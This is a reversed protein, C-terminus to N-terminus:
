KIETSNLSHFVKKKTEMIFLYQLKILNLVDTFIEEPNLTIEDHIGSFPLCIRDNFHINCTKM